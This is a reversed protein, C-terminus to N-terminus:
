KKNIIILNLIYFLKKLIIDKTLFSHKEIKENITMFVIKRMLGCFFVQKQRQFM